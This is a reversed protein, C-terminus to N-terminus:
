GMQEVIRRGVVIEVEMGSNYHSVSTSWNEQGEEDLCINPPVQCM